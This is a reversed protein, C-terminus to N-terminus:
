VIGLWQVIQPGFSVVVVYALAVIASRLGGGETIGPIASLEATIGNYDYGIYVPVWIFALTSLVPLLLVYMAGLAVNRKTSGSKMGPIYNTTAM